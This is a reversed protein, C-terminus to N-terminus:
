MLRRGTGIMLWILQILVLRVDINVDQGRHRPKRLPRKGKPEVVFIYANETVGICPKHGM